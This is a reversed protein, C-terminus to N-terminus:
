GPLSDIAHMINKQLARMMKRNYEELDSELTSVLADWGDVHVYTDNKYKVMYEFTQTAQVLAVIGVSYWYWSGLVDEREKPGLEIQLRDGYVVSIYHTTESMHWKADALQKYEELRQKSLETIIM